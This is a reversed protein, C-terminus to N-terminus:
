FSNVLGHGCIQIYVQNEVVVGGVFVGLHACPQRCPRAKMKVERGGVRGPEILHLAPESQNRLLGDTAAGEFADFFQDGFDVAEDLM